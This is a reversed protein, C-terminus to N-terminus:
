ADVHTFVEERLRDSLAIFARIVPSPQRLGGAISEVALELDLRDAMVAEDLASAAGVLHALLRDDSGGRRYSLDRWRSHEGIIPGLAELFGIKSVIEQGAAAHREPNQTRSGDEGASLMGVDHLLAALSLREIEGQGLGLRRGVLVCVSAVRASHGSNGGSQMETVRALTGVTKTYASRTRLLLDYSHKMVLMLSTLVFIALVGLSPYIILLVLGVSMQGLYAPGVVEFLSKMSAILNVRLNLWHSLSHAVLDSAMFAVAVLLGVQVPHDGPEAGISRIVLLAVSGSVYVVPARSLVQMWHVRTGERDDRNAIDSFLFSLMSMLAATEVSMLLTAPVVLGGEISIREGQPLSLPVLGLALFAFGFAVTTPWSTGIEGTVALVAILANLVVAGPLLLHRVTATRM